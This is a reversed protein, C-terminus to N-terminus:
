KWESQRKKQKIIMNSAGLGGINKTLSKILKVNLYMNNPDRVGGSRHWINKFSSLTLYFTTLPQQLWYVTWLLIFYITIRHTRELRVYLHLEAKTKPRSNEITSELMNTPHYKLHPIELLYTTVQSLAIKQNFHIQISASKQRRLVLLM